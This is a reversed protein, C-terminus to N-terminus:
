LKVGRKRAIAVIIDLDRLYRDVNRALRQRSDRRNVNRAMEGINALTGRTTWYAERLDADNMDKYM